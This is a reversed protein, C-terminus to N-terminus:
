PDLSDAVDSHVSLYGIKQVNGDHSSFAADERCQNTARQNM